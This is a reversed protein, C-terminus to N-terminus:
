NQAVEAPILQKQIYKHTYTDSEFVSIFFLIRAEKKLFFDMSISEKLEGVVKLHKERKQSRM